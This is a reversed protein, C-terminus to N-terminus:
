SCDNKLVNQSFHLVATRQTCFDWWKLKWECLNSIWMDSKRIMWLLPFQSKMKSFISFYIYFILIVFLTRNLFHQLIYSWKNCLHNYILIIASFARSKLTSFGLLLLPNLLSHLLARLPRCFLLWCVCIVWICSMCVSKISCSQQSTETGSSFLWSIRVTCQQKVRDSTVSSWWHCVAQPKLM